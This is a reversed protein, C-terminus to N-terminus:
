SQNLIFINLFRIINKVYSQKGSHRLLNNAKSIFLISNDIDQKEENGDKDCSKLILKEFISNNNFSIDDKTHLSQNDKKIIKRSKPEKIQSKPDIKDNKPQSKPVVSSIQNSNMSGNINNARKTSSTASSHIRIDRAKKLIEDLSDFNNMELDGKNSEQDIPSLKTNKAIAKEQSEKEHSRSESENYSSVKRNEYVFKQLFQRTQLLRSNMNHANEIRSDIMKEISKLYDIDGKLM